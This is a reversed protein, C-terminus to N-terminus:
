LSLTVIELDIGASFGDDPDESVLNVPLDWDDEGTDLCGSCRCDVRGDGEAYTDSREIDSTVIGSVFLGTM